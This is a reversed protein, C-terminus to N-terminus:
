VRGASLFVYGSRSKRDSEDGAYDSDVFGVLGHDAGGGFKIGLNVTGNLYRLVHQAAEWQPKTPSHSYRGLSTATHALDPRTSVALYMLSGVLSRYKSGDVFPEGELRDLGAVMPVAVAKSKSMSFTHLLDVSMKYQTLTLTRAVRDRTVEMGLFLWAAGLDKITFKAGLGSKARDVVLKDGGLLMNDVHVILYCVGDASECIYLAEDMSAVRFGLEQLEAHLMLHWQRPAQKLGYIAKVLRCVMGPRGEFGSPQEMWLPVDVMGNLFATKVDLQELELDHEAVLSVLMRVSVAASCPAWVEGYDVGARQSYGKCVLRAKFRVVRGMEDRKLDFVWRVGLAKQGEPLPEEVWTGHAAHSEMEEEMGKEWEGAGAGVSGQRLPFVDEEFVVDRSVVVAADEDMLCRYSKGGTILEHPTKSGHSVKLNTLLGAAMVADPWYKVDLGADILMTVAQTKIKGIHREAIGNQAPTYPASQQDQVGNDQMWRLNDGPEYKTTSDGFPLSKMKGMHCLDCSLTATRSIEPFDMVAEERAMNQMGTLGMHALRRHLRMVEEDTIAFAMASGDREEVRRDEPRKVRIHLMPVGAQWVAQMICHGQMMGLFGNQVVEFQVGAQQLKHWGVLVAAGMSPVHLVDRLLLSYSREPGASMVLVDGRGEPRCPGGVGVVTAADPTEVYSGAVFLSLDGAGGPSRSGQGGGSSREWIPPRGPKGHVVAMATPQSRSSKALLMSEHACLMTMLDQMCPAVERANVATLVGEYEDRLGRKYATVLMYEPIPKGTNNLQETLSFARASYTLVTEDLAQKLEMVQRAFDEAKSANCYLGVSKCWKWMSPASGEAHLPMMSLVESSLTQRILIRAAADSRELASAVEENMSDKTDADEEKGGRRGHKSSAIAAAYAAGGGKVSPFLSAATMYLELTKTWKYGNGYDLKEIDNVNMQPRMGASAM